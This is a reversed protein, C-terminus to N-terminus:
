KVTVSKALNRPKDPDFGKILCLQYALLQITAVQPLVTAIGCDPVPLFNDFVSHPKPSLGVIYAGRAKIEMANSIIDNYTSDAPALVICPTGPEILAIPGHKLEGGAFGEAHIYSVEKIKLASEYAVPLSLGRGIIYVHQSDVLRAALSHIKKLSDPLLIGNITNIAQTQDVGLLKLFISIEATFTKTSLVCKEPGCPLIQCYDVLRHLTSHPSNIVAATTVGRSKAQNVLNIIDITEGSQSFALLLSKDTFTDVYSDFESSPLCIIPKKIKATVIASNFLAAFYSSGCGTFFIRDANQAFKFIQNLALLDTGSQISKIISPQESIEKILYNPYDSLSSDASSKAIKVLHSKILEGTAAQYLKIDESSIDAMQGDELVIFKDTQSSLARPDSSIYNEHAGLGIVLPSGKKAVIINPDLHAIVAIANLGDLQLFALRVSELFTNTKHYEEILHVIAESDTQSIFTHGLAILTKKLDQYNEVIGNHVLAINGSCDLHPHCNPLTIGGHTAWRTHGISIQSEPIGDPKSTIKGLTKKTVLGVASDAVIGWSDYGRYELEKLGRFVVDSSHRSKSTYGYIGCM